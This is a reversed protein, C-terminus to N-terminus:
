INITQQCEIIEKWSAFHYYPFHGYPVTIVPTLNKNHCEIQNKPPIIKDFDSVIALDYFGVSELNNENKILTYLNELESVRNEISRQVPYSSYLQYEEETPFLNQYFKGELGKQAHKLTLEFMRVPIGYTDDVPSTTGNIAIKKNFDAFLDKLKCAVFVGMSWTILTKNEYGLFDKLDEPIFLSNYDYVVLVDYDTYNLAIFPKEDFSWGAFFVILNKNNQKNLWVSKM